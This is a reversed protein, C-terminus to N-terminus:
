TYWLERRLVKICATGHNSLSQEIGAATTEALSHWHGQSVSIYLWACKKHYMEHCQLWENHSHAPPAQFRMPVRLAYSTFAFMMFPLQNSIGDFDALVLPQPRM